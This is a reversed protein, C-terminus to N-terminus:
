WVVDQDEVVGPMGDVNRGGITGYFTGVPQLFRSRVVVLNTNQAHVAGVEFRLDIGEGKLSWPDSPRDRDFSFKPEALPQVDGQTFLACEAEGVFGQVVNFALPEGDRARGTAFAWRWRTHRPMM